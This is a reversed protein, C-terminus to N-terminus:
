IAYIAYIEYIAYIAYIAYTAHEATLENYPTPEDVPLWHSGLLGNVSV